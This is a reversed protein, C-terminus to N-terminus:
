FHWQAQTIDKIINNSLYKHACFFTEFKTNLKFSDQPTKKTVTKYIDDNTKIYSRYEGHSINPRNKEM